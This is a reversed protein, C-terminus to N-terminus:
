VLWCLFATDLIILFSWLYQPFIGEAKGRSKSGRILPKAM